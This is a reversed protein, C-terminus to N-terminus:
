FKQAPRVADKKPNGLDRMKSNGTDRPISVKPLAKKVGSDDKLKSEPKYIEFERYGMTMNFAIVLVVALPDFVFILMFIFFKVVSDIDTGFIRALYIAPGVDVGTEILGVKLDGIEQKISLIEDNISLVKPNYEERLNRKATPYNDPLSAISQEM